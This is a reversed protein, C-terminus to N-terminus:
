VTSELGSSAWMWLGSIFMWTSSSYLTCHVSCVQKTYQQGDGGGPPFLNAPLLVLNSLLLGRNLFYEYMYINYLISYYVSENRYTYTKFYCHWFFLVSNQLGLSQKIHVISEQITATEIYQVVPKRIPQSKGSICALHCRDLAWSCFKHHMNKWLWGKKTVIKRWNNGWVALSVNCYLTLIPLMHYMCKCYLSSLRSCLYVIGLDEIYKTKVISNFRRSCTRNQAKPM